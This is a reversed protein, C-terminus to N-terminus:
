DNPTTGSLVARARSRYAELKEEPKILRHSRSQV